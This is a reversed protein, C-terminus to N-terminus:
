RSQLLELVQTWKQRNDAAQPALLQAEVFADANDGYFARLAKAFVEIM